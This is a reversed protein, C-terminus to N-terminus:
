GRLKRDKIFKRVTDGHFGLADAIEKGNLGAEIMKAIRPIQDDTLKKM